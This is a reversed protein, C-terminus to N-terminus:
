TDERVTFLGEAPAYCWRGQADRSEVYWAYAHGPRLLDGPVVCRCAAAAGGELRVDALPDADDALCADEFVRVRAARQTVRPAPIAWSLELGSPSAAVSALGDPWLGHPRTANYALLPNGARPRWLVTTLAGCSFGSPGRAWLVVAFRADEHLLDGPVAFRRTSPDLDLRLLRHRWLDATEEWVELRWGCLPGEGGPRWEVVWAGSALVRHPLGVVLPAAPRRTGGDGTALAVEPGDGPGADAAGRNTAGDDSAPGGDPIYYDLHRSWANFYAERGRPDRPLRGRCYFPLGSLGARRRLGVLDRAAAPDRGGSPDAAALRDHLPGHFFRMRGDWRRLYAGGDHRLRDTTETARMYRTVLPRDGVVRGRGDFLPIGARPSSDYVLDLGDVQGCYFVTHFDPDPRRHSVLLDGPVLERAETFPRWLADTSGDDRLEDNAEAGDDLWDIVRRVLGWCDFMDDFNYPRAQPGFLELAQLLRVVPLPDPRMPSAYCGDRAGDFHM